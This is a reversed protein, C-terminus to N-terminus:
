LSTRSERAVPQCPGRLDQTSLHALVPSWPVKRKHLLDKAWGKGSREAGGWAPETGFSYGTARRMPRSLRGPLKVPMRGIRTAADNARRRFSTARERQREVM